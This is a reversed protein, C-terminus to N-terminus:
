IEEKRIEGLLVKAIDKDKISGTIEGKKILLGGRRSGCIGIDCEKAEGPGNVECGMIAVRLNKKFDKEKLLSQFKRVTKDVDIRRRTCGPCSIIELNEPKGTSISRLIRAMEVEEVSSETLSVRLTDGIGDLLLCGIGAASKVKGPMGPGTATIGIHLPTDSYSAFFRNAEVTFKVSSSKMSVLFNNFGREQIKRDWELALSALEEPSSVSCSGTNFGLRLAASKVAAKDVAAMVSDASMNGPNVRVKDFGAELAELAATKTFHCDAILPVGLEEIHSFIKRADGKGPVACRIMQAGAEVLSCGESLLARGDSSDSKLMAQIRLESEGGVTLSGIKIERSIM